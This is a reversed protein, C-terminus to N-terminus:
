CDRVRDLLENKENWNTYTQGFRVLVWNLKGWLSEPFIKKLDNEIDEQKKGKTWGLYRSCYEVHTDVGITQEGKEALFVNATKRGVGPLEILKEFQLPVNGDYKEVLMEALKKIHKAKNLYFNVGNIEKAIEEEGLESLREVSSYKEFLREAIPITVKDMTRASMLTAILIKWDTDWGDAALRKDQGLRELEAFQRLAKKRDIM